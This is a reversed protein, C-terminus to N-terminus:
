ITEAEADPVEKKRFDVVLHIRQTEGFNVQSTLAGMNVWNVFGIPMNISEIGSYFYALPNTVLAVHFRLWDVTERNWARVGGPRLLELAVRGLEFERMQDIRQVQKIRNTLEPWKRWLPHAKAVGDESVDRLLLTKLDAEGTFLNLKARLSAVLSFTDVFGVYRFNIM